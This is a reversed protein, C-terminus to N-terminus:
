PFNPLNIALYYINQYTMCKNPQNITNKVVDKFTLYSESTIVEYLGEVVKREYEYESVERLESFREAAKDWVAIGTVNVASADFSLDFQGSNLNTVDADYRVKM